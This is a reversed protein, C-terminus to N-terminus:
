SQDKSGDDILIVEINTYTQERISEICQRLYREANYVPVIISIKKNCM